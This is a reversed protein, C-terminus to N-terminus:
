LAYLLVYISHFVSGMLALVHFIGHTYKKGSLLYYFAAGLTYCIGGALLLWLGGNQMLYPWAKYAAVVCWGMAIYCIGSLVKFRKLDIANLIIGVLAALWVALFLVIGLTTDYQRILCLCIPTYTGAILVFINCHDFIRFVQKAMGQTLGHYVTSCAYLLILSIGYVVASIMTYGDGHQAAIEAGYILCVIGLIVGIGHSIAHFREEGRTYNPLIRDALKTRKM